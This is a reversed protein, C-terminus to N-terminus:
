SVTLKYVPHTGADLLNGDIYQFGVFGEQDNGAYLEVLRKMRIANVERMKYKKLQGFVAVVNGTAVTDSMYDNEIVPYGLLREPQDEVLSPQWLYQDDNDKFMRVIGLIAGSMLFVSGKRYASKVKYRLKIIDDPVLTAVAATTWSTAATVIGTPEAVGTGTTCKHDQGRAIREGVKRGLYEAIDFASDNLLEDSVVIIKSTMKYAKLLVSSFVPDAGGTVAGGESVIVGENSTDNETPWPLDNGSSTRIIEAVTRMSGYTLLAEELANVFGEPVTYGGATLTGVSLARLEKISRASRKFLSVAIEKTSANFKIKEIAQREEDRITGKAQYRIWGRFALEKDKESIANAPASGVIVAKIEKRAEMEKAVDDARKIADIQATLSDYDASAKDFNTKEEATFARKEASILDRLQVMSKAAEARKENLGKLM